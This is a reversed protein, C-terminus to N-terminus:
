ILYEKLESNKNIYLKTIILSPVYLLFMHFKINKDKIKYDFYIKTNSSKIISKSLYYRLITKIKEKFSSIYTKRDNLYYSTYYLMNIMMQISKKSRSMHDDGYQYNIGLPKNIYYAMYKKDLRRWIISEAVYKVGKPEPFLNNKLIETVNISCHDGKISTCIKNAMKSDMSNINDPFLEGVINHNENEFLAIIERYKNKKDNPINLWTEVFTSLANPLYADDSDLNTFLKGRAIKIAANRATHVGGNNKKIYIVPFDVEDMFKYIKKEVGDTSGDDVIIYEFNKYDQNKISNLPREITHIRNYVPTCISVFPKAKDYYKNKKICTAVEGIALYLEKDLKNNM